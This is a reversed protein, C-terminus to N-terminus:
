QSRDIHSRERPRQIFDHRSVFRESGREHFLVALRQLTDQRWPGGMQFADIQPMQRRRLADALEFTQRLGLVAAAEIEFLAREHHRAQHRQGGSIVPQQEGQM